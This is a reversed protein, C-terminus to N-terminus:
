YNKIYEHPQAVLVVVANWLIKMVGLLFGADM